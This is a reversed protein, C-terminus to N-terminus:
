GGAREVRGPVVASRGRRRHALARRRQRLDQDRGRRVQHQIARAYRAQDPSNIVGDEPGTEHGFLGFRFGDGDDCHGGTSGLAHVSVLMRPGPVMGCQDCQAAGRRHFRQSGVDRVTTFGAMLPRARTPPPASLTARFDAAAAFAARRRQLRPQVRQLSAHARRHFGAAAHRRGPRDGNRGGTAAGGVSEITAM